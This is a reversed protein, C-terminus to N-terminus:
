IRLYISHKGWKEWNEIDVVPGNSTELKPPKCKRWKNTNAIGYCHNLWLKRLNDRSDSLSYLTIDKVLDNVFVTPTHGSKPFYVTVPGTNSVPKYSVLGDHIRSDIRVLKDDSYVLTAPEWDEHDGEFRDCSWYYWYTVYMFPLKRRIEVVIREPISGCTIPARTEIACTNDIKDLRLQEIARLTKKDLDSPIEPLAGVARLIARSVDIPPAM